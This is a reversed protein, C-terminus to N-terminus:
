GWSIHAGISFSCLHNDANGGGKATDRRNGAAMKTILVYVSAG